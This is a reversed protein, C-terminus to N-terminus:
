RGCEDGADSSDTIAVTARESWNLGDTVFVVGALMVDFDAFGLILLSVDHSSDFDPGVLFANGPDVQFVGAAILAM